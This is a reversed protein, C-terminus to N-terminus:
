GARAIVSLEDAAMAEWAPLRPALGAATLFAHDVDVRRRGAKARRVLVTAVHLAGLVDRTGETVESPTHHYAVAEVIPFPLGWVGLLYAGVEAHTTGLITREVEHIPADSEETIRLVEAYADTMGQVLVITGIDHVIAATFVEEAKTRDPLFRRALRATILSDEQLRDLSFGDLAVDRSCAFVHATLALGRLLESGLYLVAQRISSIRQPLGFYASNVLQLVKASMAPDKEVIAGLDALGTTPRAIAAALEVYTRPVSPLKDLKGVIKRITEDHLLVQLNCTREIAVRLAEADCPKSMFQHAVPLARVLADQEAHGSLVVRAVSPHREKVKTLLAAGDMGPMRMDSVIVDFPGRQLETLADAGSTVFVMDWRRRQKRLLNQLGELVSVEDDVFLIRKTM